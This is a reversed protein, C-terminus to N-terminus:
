ARRDSLLFNIRDQTTQSFQAFEQNSILELSRIACLEILATSRRSDNFTQAIENDRDDILKYIDLYRQHASKTSDSRLHDLEVLVRQCYREVALEHFKRLLKWDSEPFEHSM